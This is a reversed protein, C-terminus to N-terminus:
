IFTETELMADELWEFCFVQAKEYTHGAALGAVLLWVDRYGFRSVKDRGYARGAFCPTGQYCAVLVHRRWAAVFWRLLSRRMGTAGDYSSESLSPVPPVSPVAHGLMVQLEALM